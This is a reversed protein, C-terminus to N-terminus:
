SPSPTPALKIRNELLVEPEFTSALVKLLRWLADDNHYLIEPTIGPMKVKSLIVGLNNISRDRLNPGSRRVTPM